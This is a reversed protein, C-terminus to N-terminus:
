AGDTTHHWTWQKRGLIFCRLLICLLKQFIISILATKIFSSYEPSLFTEPHKLSLFIKHQLLHYLFSFCVLIIRFIDSPHFPCRLVDAAISFHIVEIVSVLICRVHPLTYNFFCSFNSPGQNQFVPPFFIQHWMRGLYISFSNGWFVLLKQACTSTAQKSFTILIAKPCM